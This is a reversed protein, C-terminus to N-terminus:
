ELTFGRSSLEYRMNEWTPIYAPNFLEDGDDSRVTLLGNKDDDRFLHVKLHGYYYTMLLM